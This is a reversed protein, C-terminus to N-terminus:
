KIEGNTIYGHWFGPGGNLSPTISLSAFDAESRKANVLTWGCGPNCTQCMADGGLVVEILREQDETPTPEFFCSTWWKPRVPNRFVFGVRAGAHELWKPELDTLKQM